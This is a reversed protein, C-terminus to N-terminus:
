QMETDMVSDGLITKFFHMRYENAMYWFKEDTDARLAKLEDESAIFNLVGLPMYVVFKENRRIAWDQYVSRFDAVIQRVSDGRLIQVEGDDMRKRPCFDDVTEIVGYARCIFPRYDYVQCGNDFFVCHEETEGHPQWTKDYLKGKLASKVEEIWAEAEAKNKNEMVLYYERIINYAIFACEVMPLTLGIRCCKGSGICRTDLENHKSQLVRMQNYVTDLRAFEVSDFLDFNRFQGM